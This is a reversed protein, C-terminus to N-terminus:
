LIPTKLHVAKTDNAISSLKIRKNIATDYSDYLIVTSADAGSALVIDTILFQGSLVNGTASLISAGISAGYKFLDIM